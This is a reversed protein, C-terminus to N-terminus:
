SLKFKLACNVLVEFGGTAVAVLLKRCAAERISIIQSQSNEWGRRCLPSLLAPACGGLPPYVFKKEMPGSVAEKQSSFGRSNLLVM